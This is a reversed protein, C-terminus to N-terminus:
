FICAYVYNDVTDFTKVGKIRMPRESLRISLRYEAETTKHQFVYTM